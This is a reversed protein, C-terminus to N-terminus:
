WIKVAAVEDLVVTTHAFTFNTMRKPDGPKKALSNEIETKLQNVYLLDEKNIKVSDRITQGSNLICIM